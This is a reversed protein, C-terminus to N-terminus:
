KGAVFVKGVCRYDESHGQIYNKINPCLATIKLKNENAYELVHEILKKSLLQYGFTKEINLHFFIIGGPYQHFRIVAYGTSTMAEFCNSQTNKLIIIEL